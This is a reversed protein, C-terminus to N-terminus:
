AINWTLRWLIFVFFDIWETLFIGKSYSLMEKKTKSQLSTFKHFEKSLNMQTIISSHSLEHQKKKYVKPMFMDNNFLTENKNQKINETLWVSVKM